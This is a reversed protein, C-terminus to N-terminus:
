ARIKKRETATDRDYQQYSGHHKLLEYSDNSIFPKEDNLDKVIDGALYRSKEKIHEVKSRKKEESM